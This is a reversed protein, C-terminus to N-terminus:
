RGQDHGAEKKARILFELGFWCSAAVVFFAGGVLLGPTQGMAWGVAVFLDFALAVSLPV